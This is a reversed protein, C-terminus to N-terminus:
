LAHLLRMSSLETLDVLIMIAQLVHRRINM